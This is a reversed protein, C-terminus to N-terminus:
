GFLIFLMWHNKGAAKGTDGRWRWEDLVMRRRVAPQPRPKIQKLRAMAEEITVVPHDLSYNDVYQPLVEAYRNLYDIRQQTSLSSIRKAM